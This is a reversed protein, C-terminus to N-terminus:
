LGRRRDIELDEDPESPENFKEFCFDDFMAEHADCFQERLQEIHKDQWDPFEDSCDIM